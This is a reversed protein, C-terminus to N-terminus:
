PHSVGPRPNSNVLREKAALDGREVGKALEIEEDRTLLPYRRAEQMFLSLADTPREALDVNNYTTQDVGNRGCDDRVDFGREELLEALAQVDDESLDHETAAESLESLEVCTPARGQGRAVLEDALETLAESASTSAPEDPM